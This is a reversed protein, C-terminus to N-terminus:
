NFYVVCDLSSVLVVFVVFEYFLILMMEVLCCTLDVVDLM